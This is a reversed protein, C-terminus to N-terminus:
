SLTFVIKKKWRYGFRSGLHDKKIMLGKEIYQRNIRTRLIANSKSEFGGHLRLKSRKRFSVPVAFSREVSTELLQKKIDKTVSLVLKQKSINVFLSNGKQVKVNNLFTKSKNILYQQDNKNIIKNRFDITKKLLGGKKAKFKQILGKIPYLGLSKKLILDNRCELCNVLSHNEKIEQSLNLWKKKSFTKM